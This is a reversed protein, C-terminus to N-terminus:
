GARTMGDRRAVRLLEAITARWRPLVQEPDPLEFTIGSTIQAYGVADTRVGVVDAALGALRGGVAPALDDSRDVRLRVHEVADQRVVLLL